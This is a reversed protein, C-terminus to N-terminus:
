VENLETDYRSIFGSVCVCVWFHESDVSPAREENEALLAPQVFPQRLISRQYRINDGPTNQSLRKHLRSSASFSRAGDLPYQVM